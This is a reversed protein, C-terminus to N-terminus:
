AEAIEGVRYVKKYKKTLHASLLSGLVAPAIWFIIQYEGIGSLLHRGGFAAFATYAGIGSGIMSGIHELLYGGPRINNCLVYRLMSIGACSGLIGFLLHLTQERVIGIAIFVLGGLALMALPSVYSVKRLLSRNNAAKLVADGHRTTTYSLLALYLLFLWFYRVNEIVIAANPANALQPKVALPMAIVMVAMVAGTAAVCYMVNRYARGFKKHKLQGKKTLLPVWFLILAATGVVIHLFFLTSHIHLM